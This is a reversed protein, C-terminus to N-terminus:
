ASVYWERGCWCVDRVVCTCARVGGGSVCLVRICVGICAAAVVVVSAVVSVWVSKGSGICTNEKSGPRPRWVTASESAVCSLTLSAFRRRGKSGVVTVASLPGSARPALLADVVGALDMGTALATGTAASDAPDEGTGTTAATGTAAAVGMTASSATCASGTQKQTIRSDVSM